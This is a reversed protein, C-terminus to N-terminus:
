PAPMCAAGLYHPLVGPLVALIAGSIALGPGIRGRFTSMAWILVGITALIVGAAFAIPTVFDTVICFAMPLYGLWTAIRDILYALGLPLLFAVALNGILREPRLPSKM